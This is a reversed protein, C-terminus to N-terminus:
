VRPRPPWSYQALPHALRRPANPWQTSLRYPSYFQELHALNPALAELVSDTVLPFTLNCILTLSRTRAMWTPLRGVVDASLAISAHRLRMFSARSSAVGASAMAGGNIELTRPGAHGGGAASSHAGDWLYERELHVHPNSERLRPKGPRDNLVLEELDSTSVKAM